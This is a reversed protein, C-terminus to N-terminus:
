KETMAKMLVNSRETKVEESKAVIINEVSFTTLRAEFGRGPAGSEQIYSELSLSAWNHGGAGADRKDDEVDRM